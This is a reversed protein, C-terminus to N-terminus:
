MVAEYYVSNDGAVVLQRGWRGGGTAVYESGWYPDTYDDGSWVGPQWFYDNEVVSCCSPPFPIIDSPPDTEPVPEPVIDGNLWFCIDAPGIFGSWLLETEWTLGDDFSQIMEAPSALVDSPLVDIRLLEFAGVHNTLKAKITFIYTDSKTFTYSSTIDMRLVFLRPFIVTADFYFTDTHTVLASGTPRYNEDVKYFKIEIDGSYIGPWSQFGLLLATPIFYQPSTFVQAFLCETDLALRPGSYGSIGTAIIYAM